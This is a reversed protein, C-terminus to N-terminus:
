AFAFVVFCVVLVLCWGCNFCICLLWGLIVFRLVLDFGVSNLCVFCASLDLVFLRIGYFMM